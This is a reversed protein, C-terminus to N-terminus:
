TPGFVPSPRLLSLVAEGLLLPAEPGTSGDWGLFVCGPRPFFGPADYDYDKKKKLRELQKLVM